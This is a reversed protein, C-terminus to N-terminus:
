EVVFFSSYSYATAGRQPLLGGRPAGAIDVGEPTNLVGKVAEREM